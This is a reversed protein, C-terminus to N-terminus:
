AIGAIFSVSARAQDLVDGDHRPNVLIPVGPIMRALTAPNTREALDPTADRMNLVIGRVPIDRAVLAEHTLAVHNLTGLGARAVIVVQLGNERAVDLATCGWSLPVLLGGAGEVIVRRGGARLGRIRRGIDGPDLSCGAREAAVAPALAEALRLLPRALPTEIGSAQALIDSDAVGADSLGTEAPKFGVASAGQQRANFILAAAIVTKGVGTDTGTVLLDAM